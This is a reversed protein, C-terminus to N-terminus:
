LVLLVTVSRYVYGCVCGYMCLVCVRVCERAYVGGCLLCDCMAMLWMCVYGSVRVCVCVHVCRCVKKRVRLWVFGFENLVSRMSCYRRLELYLIM